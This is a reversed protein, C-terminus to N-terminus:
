SRAVRRKGVVLESLADCLKMAARVSCFTCNFMKLVFDAVRKSHELSSELLFSRAPNVLVATAM